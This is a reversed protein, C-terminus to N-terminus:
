SLEGLKRTALKSPAHTNIITRRVKIASYVVSDDIAYEGDCGCAVRRM